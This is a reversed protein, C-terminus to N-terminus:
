WRYRRKGMTRVKGTKRVVCRAGALWCRSSEKGWRGVEWERSGWGADRSEM